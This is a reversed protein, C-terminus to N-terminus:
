RCVFALTLCFFSVFEFKFVRTSINLFISNCKEVWEVEWLWHRPCMSFTLKHEQFIRSLEVALRNEWVEKNVYCTRCVVYLLSSTSKTVSKNLLVHTHSPIKRLFSHFQQSLHSLKNWRFNTIQELWWSVLDADMTGWWSISSKKRRKIRDSEHMGSLNSEAYMCLWSCM